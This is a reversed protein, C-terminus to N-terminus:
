PAVAEFHAQIDLVNLGRRPAPQLATPKGTYERQLPACGRCYGQHGHNDCFLVGCAPCSNDTVTSCNDLECPGHHVLHGEYARTIVEPLSATTVKTDGVEITYMQVGYREVRKLQVVEGSNVLDRLDLMARENDSM